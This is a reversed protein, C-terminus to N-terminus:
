TKLIPDLLFKPSGDPGLEPQPHTAPDPPPPAYPGARKGCASLGLALSVM